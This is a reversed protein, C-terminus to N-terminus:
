KREAPTRLVLTGGAELDATREGWPAIFLFHGARDARISAACAGRGWRLNVTLGGRARLGSVRGGTWSAPLAPFLRVLTRGDGTTEHSQLLMEAVAATAAFNGDIQFPPHADFLNRYVGGGHHAGGPGPSVLTLLHHLIREARDGELFRARLLARWGMAWGTSLDGRVNLSRWAARFTEPNRLSTFEAAPYVGYLHSVHRHHPDSDPLDRGFEALRGDTLIRPPCLRPLQAALAALVPDKAADLDLIAAAELCTGFLERIISLDMLSGECCTCDEGTEPDIFGHEPSTSPSTLLRGGEGEVLLASLFAAAGRMTPFWKKLYALDGSFRYHEMLQRCVWGGGVPWYAWWPCGTAPGAFGWIDSNHHLCWGPLGYIKEAAVAGQRAYVEIQAEYPELCEALNATEVPWYNMEANINLTYNSGWPPNLLNNWIGQLNTARTGRRSSAIMLYRGFHYLLAILTPPAVKMGSSREILAGTPLSAEVAPADLTLRSRDYLPGVDAAHAKLLADFGKAEATDLDARCQARFDIGSAEPNTECDKFNSRIAVLLLLDRAGDIALHGDAARCVAGPAVARVAVRFSIGTRGDATEYTASRTQRAWAPCVGDFWLERGAASVAGKVPSDFGLRYARPKASRIRKVFVADPCSCFSVVSVRGSTGSFSCTDVARRLDLARSYRRAGPDDAVIHLNGATVFVASDRFGSGPAEGCIKWLRQSAQAYKGARLLRRLGPLKDKLVVPYGSDPRGSWLTDESFAVVDDATGDFVMAGIRGNGVPYAENWHAAPTKEVLTEQSKMSDKQEEGAADNARKRARRECAVM